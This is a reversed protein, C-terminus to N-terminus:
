VMLTLKPMYPWHLIAIMATYDLDKHARGLLQVALSLWFSHKLLPLWHSSLISMVGGDLYSETGFSYMQTLPTLVKSPWKYSTLVNNLNNLNHPVLKGRGPIYYLSNHPIHMNIQTIQLYDLKNVWDFNNMLTLTLCTMLWRCWQSFDPCKWVLSLLFWFVTKSNPKCKVQCNLISYRNTLKM